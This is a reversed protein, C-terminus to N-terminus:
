DITAIYAPHGREYQVEHWLTGDKLKRAIEDDREKAQKERLYITNIKKEKRKQFYKRLGM